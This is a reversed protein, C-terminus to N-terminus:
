CLGRQFAGQCLVMCVVRFLALMRSSVRSLVHECVKVFSSFRVTEAEMEGQCSITTFFPRPLGDTRTMWLVNWERDKFTLREVCWVIQQWKTLTDNAVVQAGSSESASEESESASEEDEESESASEESEESESASEEDEESESASEEDEESESASEESESASEKDEESESASEESEESESASEEDEESESASEEDEESESASEESESAHTKFLM